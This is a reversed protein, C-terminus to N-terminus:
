GQSAKGNGTDTKATAQETDSWDMTASQGTLGYDFRKNAMATMTARMNRATSNVSQGGASGYFMAQQVNDFNAGLWTVVWGRQRCDELLAKAQTISLERSANEHGDTMIIIAVKDYNGAKALTVIKGIADNLPTMSRPEIETVAVPHWTKPIIRDRVIQFDLGSLGDFAALTVGTDVNKEALTKVYGNVSNIAETWLSSMSGSRDLLIFDHDM